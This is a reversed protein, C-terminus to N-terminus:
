PSRPHIYEVRLDLRAFSIRRFACPYGGEWWLPPLSWLPNHTVNCESILIDEATVEEVYAVHGGPSGNAGPPFVVVAGVAPQQNVPFGCERAAHGWNRAMGSEGVFYPLDPRKEKAYWTCVGRPYRNAYGGSPCNYLRHALVATTTPLAAAPSPEQGSHAWLRLVDTPLAAGAGAPNPGGKARALANGEGGGAAGAGAPDAGGEAPRFQVQLAAPGPDQGLRVEEGRRGALQRYVLGQQGGEGPSSTAPPRYTARVILLGALLALLLVAIVLLVATRQTPEWALLRRRWYRAFRLRRHRLPRLHPRPCPSTAAPGAQRHAPSQLRPATEQSLPFADRGGQQGASRHALSQARAATEQSLPFADRGGQQGASRHAPPCPLAATEHRSLSRTHGGQRSASRPHRLFLGLAIVAPLGILAGSQLLPPGAPRWVLLLLHGVAGTSMLVPVPWFPEKRCLIGHTLLLAAVTGFAFWGVPAVYPRALRCLGEAAALLVLYGLLLPLANGPSGESLRSPPTTPGVPTRTEGTTLDLTTM